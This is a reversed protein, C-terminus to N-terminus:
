ETRLRWELVGASFGPQLDVLLRIAIIQKPNTLEAHCFTDAKVPIPEKTPADQWVGNAETQVQLRSAVPIRCQGIGTDDFWYVDIGKVTEPTKLTYQAWEKTGLHPWWTVRPVNHDSSRAPLLGDCLASITGQVSKDLFSMSPTLPTFADAKAPDTHFWMLMEDAGRHCWAFYPILKLTAPTVTRKQSLSAFVQTGSAQWMPFLQGAIAVSGTRTIPKGADLSLNIAHGQNDVAETCYVVPGIEIARRGADNKVAPHAAILQPQMPLRLTVTDGKKWARKLVAYGSELNLKVSEGNVSLEVPQSPPSVQTYLDSPVPKGQAWGPIRGRLAFEGGEKKPTVEIRIDGKWPYDTVQKLTANEFQAESAIFLNVYLDNGKRAYAFQPIQPIFRVVNVPCCSCGFWKKRAYGGRSAQPNPYFFEDGSISIGSLFGNYITRELVDIFKADGTMLFLRENWLANAIAACTELYAATNPLEYNEGFAEGAHRAGIGGNLHLKKGVVNEWIRLIATHYSSDDLLAAVDTVGAYLYGARVAHGVAEDQEKVLKHDQCYAGYVKGRVSVNGRLDIFYKALDLYKRQGTVRYLKCLGIEIEEHGPIDHLQDEAPGFTRCLLNANRIAVNLLTRKGTAQFHAAAAEYLHGVNYLEHSNRTMSWRGKGLMGEHGRYGITRASYLYGDPEQAAAIKVILDDVYKDLKPDPNTALIYADGEVVKFVDSDDFPCGKFNGKQLKGAIAFNDIRGTEECKKFDAWVTVLRNTELRSKWFGEGVRVKTIEPLECPYDAWACATGIVAAGIWMWTANRM